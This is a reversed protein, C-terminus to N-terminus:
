VATALQEALEANKPKAGFLSEFVEDLNVVTKVALERICLM